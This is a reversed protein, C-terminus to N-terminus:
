EKQNQEKIGKALNFNSQMAMFRAVFLDRQKQIEEENLDEVSKGFEYPKKPYEFAETKKDKFMNGVTALLAECFYQGQLHAIVNAWEFDRRVKIGNAKSHIMIRRPNM